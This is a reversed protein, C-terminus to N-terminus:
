ERRHRELSIKQESKGVLITINKEDIRHTSCAGTMEDEKILDGCYKTFRV